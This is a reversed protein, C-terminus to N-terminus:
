VILNTLPEEVITETKNEAEEYIGAIKLLDDPHEKLRVLIQDIDDQQDFFALRHEDGAEGIWYRNTNKVINMVNQFSTEAKQIKEKLTGAASALRATDVETVQSSTMAM